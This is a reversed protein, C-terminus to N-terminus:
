DNPKRATIKASFIAKQPDFDKFEDMGDIGILETEGFENIVLAARGNGKAEEVQAKLEPDIQDIAADIMEQEWYSATLDVETFGVERIAAIYDKVDLAGAICGAWASLSNKIVDPLPGDTVIDSVVLRGGPRLVRYAERFVQPKDPSLNIVCNSIIVDITGDEVPLNEIEGLRFEVNDAGVKVKNTRAKEIMATTMDVGIVKGTPGVKKAALFCDLGGGSGLDLVTQGEELSALTVPDGCGLTFETIESPLDIAETDEYLHVFNDFQTESESSCCVSQQPTCGCDAQSGAQHEEALRGYRQRVVSRIDELSEVKTKTTM